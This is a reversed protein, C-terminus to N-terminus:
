VRRNFGGAKQVMEPRVVEGKAELKAYHEQPTAMEGGVVFLERQYASV